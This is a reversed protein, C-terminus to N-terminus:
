AKKELNKLSKINLKLGTGGRIKRELRSSLLPPIGYVVVLSIATYLFEATIDLLNLMILIFGASYVVGFFSGFLLWVIPAFSIERGSKLGRVISIGAILTLAPGLISMGGFYIFFFPNNM